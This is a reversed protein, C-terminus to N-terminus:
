RLLEKVIQGAKAFDMRGAYRSKLASMTRGIDKLGVAGIERVLGEIVARAEEASLQKPLFEEIVAIEQKEQEALELRGAEEYTQVSERRQKIMKVLLELIEADDIRVRAPGTVDSPKIGLDRDKIAALILRITSLRRKDQSKLADKMAQNLRDRM